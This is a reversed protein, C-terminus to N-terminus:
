YDLNYKKELSSIIDEESMKLAASINPATLENYENQINVAILTDNWNINNNPAYEQVIAQFQTVYKEETVTKTFLQLAWTSVNKIVIGETGKEGIRWDVTNGSKKVPIRYSFDKNEISLHIQKDKLTHKIM